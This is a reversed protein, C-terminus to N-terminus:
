NKLKPPTLIQNIFVCKYLLSIYHSLNQFSINKISNLASDYTLFLDEEDWKSEEKKEENSDDEETFDDAAKKYLSNETKYDPKVLSILSSGTFGTLILM